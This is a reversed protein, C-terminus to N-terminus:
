FLTDFAVGQKALQKAANAANPLFSLPQRRVLYISANSKGQQCFDPYIPTWLIQPYGQEYSLFLNTVYPYLLINDSGSLNQAVM